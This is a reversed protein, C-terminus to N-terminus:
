QDDRIFSSNTVNDYDFQDVRLFVNKNLFKQLRAPDNCKGDANYAGANHIFVSNIEEYGFGSAWAEPNSLIIRMDLGCLLNNAPDRRPGTHDFGTTAGDVGRNHEVVVDKMVAWRMGIAATIFSFVSETCYAAFIDPHLRREFSEYIKDSFIHVHSNCARGVPIIFDNDQVYGTFGLWNEFGNDNSAQISLIGYNNLKFSEYAQALVTKQERFNMGSDVYIYAAFRGFRKVSEIIAANSSINVTVIQDIFYYFIRDGFHNFVRERTLESNCCSSMVVRMNELTQSLISEISDIYWQSNEKGSLGCTNYVVLVNDNKM